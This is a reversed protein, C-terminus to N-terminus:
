SFFFVRVESDYTWAQNGAMGHCRILKVTGDSGTADLCNDDSMIQQRKTHAFV